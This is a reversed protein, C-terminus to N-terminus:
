RPVAFGSLPQGSRRQDILGTYAAELRRTFRATDFLPATDRGRALRGKIEALAAPDRGLKLALAAYEDLSATVLEPLGFAHLLSAGVSSAFTSGQVTILPLGAWLADSATTHANYHITDLFLDALRHRALHEAQDVRSAFVLRDPAVGAAEAARRLNGPAVPNGELLWLVSGDIERLLRMWVGFAVPTIKYNNNFSCFVFGRPPLGAEQRSPTRDAIRRKSDTPQYSYPLTVVRESYLAQQGDPIVVGDAIIADIYPAGMTGPFGLFNIQVPAARLAMVGTRANDTHGNLDVAIDIELAIMEEAIRRDTWTRVDIFRDFSKQVRGFLEGDHPPGFALATTEFRARDHQEFVGVMLRAMAHEHLDSSLYAIRIRDHSYPEGRWQPEAAAPAAQATFLEACRLQDAATSAIPLITFPPAVLKGDRLGALVKECDADFDSWDCAHMKAHLRLGQVYAPEELLLAKDYAAVADDLQKLEFSLIGSGVWAEAVQPELALVKRYSVLADDRRKLAQLSKGRTLWIGAMDSKMTLARDCASVAEEHRKLLRLMEARYEMAAVNFPKLALVRDFSALAAGFQGLISLAVGRNAHADGLRPNIALARDYSSLAEAHRDLRMFANGRNLFAEAHDPKLAIAESFSEIADAHRGLGSQVNGLDSHAAPSKPNIRLSRNLLAEAESLQGSQAHTLAFLHLAESHDPAQRLVSQYIAQADALRGRQHLAVAQAM